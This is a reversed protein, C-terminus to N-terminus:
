GILKANKIFDACAQQPNDEKMFNEGMLFGEYGNDKLHQVSEVSSIGSETIRM